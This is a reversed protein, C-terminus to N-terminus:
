GDKKPRGPRMQSLIERIETVQAPSWLRVLLAGHKVRAAEPIRGDRELHKLWSTDKNVARSLETLTLYDQFKEPKLFSVDRMNLRHTVM